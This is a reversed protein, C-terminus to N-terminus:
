GLYRDQQESTMRALARELAAGDLGELHAFENSITADAAVPATALTPPFTSRDPPAPIRAPAKPTTAPAAAVAPTPATSKGHRRLVYARAEALADRSAALNGPQDSLGREGAEAAFMRVARDFEAGIKGDDAALDLGAGRLEKQSSRLEKQYDEMMSDQRMQTRAHDSAEARVLVVVQDQVRDEM